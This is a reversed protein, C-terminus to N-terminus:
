KNPSNIIKYCAPHYNKCAAMSEPLSKSCHHCLRVTPKNCETIKNYCAPHYKKWAVTNYSLPLSCHECLRTPTTSTTNSCKNAYHGTMSCTFCKNEATKLEINLLKIQDSSLIKQCYSGGRVNNIGHKLMYIKTQRDEEFADVNNLTEVIHMPEYLKTWACGNASFHELVRENCEKKTTGVYYKGHKLTLVYLSLTHPEIKTNDVINVDINSTYTDVINVTDVVNTTNVINENNIINTNVVTPTDVANHTVINTDIANHTVINTDIVNNTVNTGLINGM